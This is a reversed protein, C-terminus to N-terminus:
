VAAYAFEKLEAMAKRSERPTLNLAQQSKKIAKRRMGVAGPNLAKDPVQKELEQLLATANVSLREATIRLITLTEPNRAKDPVTVDHVFANPQMINYVCLWSWPVEDSYNEQEAKIRDKYRQHAKKFMETRNM